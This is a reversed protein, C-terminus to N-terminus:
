NLYVVVNRRGFAFCESETPMWIDIVRGSRISEGGTDEVDYTGLLQSPNGDKDALYVTMKRGIWEPKSAVIGERVNIGSATQGKLCYATAKMRYMEVEMPEIQRQGIQEGVYNEEIASMALGVVTDFFLFVWIVALTVIVYRM